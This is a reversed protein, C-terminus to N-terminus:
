GDSLIKGDSKASYFVGDLFIMEGDLSNFTGIGFDGYNKLSSLTVDGDFEGELLANITSYQYIADKNTNNKEAKCSFLIILIVISFIIKIFKESKM